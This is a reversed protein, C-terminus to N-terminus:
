KSKKEILSVTETLHQHRLYDKALVIFENQAKFLGLFNERLVHYWKVIFGKIKEVVVKLSDYLGENKVKGIDFYKQTEKQKAEGQMKKFSELLKKQESTLFGLAKEFLKKYNPKIQSYKKEEFVKAFYGDVIVQKKKYTMMNKEIISSYMDRENQLEEIKQLVGSISVYAADIQKDLEIYKKLNEKVNKVSNDKAESIFKEVKELCRYHFIEEKLIRKFNM